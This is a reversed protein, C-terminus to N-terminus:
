APGPPSAGRHRDIVAKTAAISELVDKRPFLMTTRVGVVNGQGVLALICALAAREDDFESIAIGDFDGFCFYFGHMTGGFAEISTRVAEARDRAEPKEVLARVLSDKYSWQHMYTPM